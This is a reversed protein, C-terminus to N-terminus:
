CSLKTASLFIFQTKKLHNTKHRQIKKVRTKCESLFQLFHSFNSRSPLRDQSRCRHSRTQSSYSSVHFIFSIFFSSIFQFIFFFLWKWAFNLWNECRCLLSLVDYPVGNQNAHSGFWNDGVVIRSQYVSQKRQTPIFKQQFILNTLSIHISEFWKM